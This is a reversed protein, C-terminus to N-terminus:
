QLKIGMGPYKVNMEEVVQQRFSNLQQQTPKNLSYNNNLLHDIVKELVGVRLETNILSEVVNINGIQM